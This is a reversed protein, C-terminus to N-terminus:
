LSREHKLLWEKRWLGSGYGTLTGNSGIIRHCPVIISVPNSGNAGGVARVAKPNGIATAIDRYSATKGFPVTLLKEWVRKQFDTGAPSIDVEFTRRAGSFYEKIQTVAAEVFPHSKFGKRRRKVFYLSTVSTSTGGVEVLGIPSECYNYYVDNM